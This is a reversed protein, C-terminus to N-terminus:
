PTNKARLTAESLAVILAAVTFPVTGSVELGIAAVCAASMGSPSMVVANDAWNLEKKAGYIVCREPLLAPGGISHPPSGGQDERRPAPVVAPLPSYPIRAAHRLRYCQWCIFHDFGGSRYYVIRHKPKVWVRARM